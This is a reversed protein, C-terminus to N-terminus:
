PNKRSFRYKKGKKYQDYFWLLTVSPVFDTGPLLEETGSILAATSNGYLQRVIFFQIPAWGLDTIEGVGPVAYSGMGIIDVIISIILRYYDENKM